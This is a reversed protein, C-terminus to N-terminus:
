GGDKRVRRAPSEATLYRDPPSEPLFRPNVSGTKFTERATSRARAVCSRSKFTTIAACSDMTRTTDLLVLAIFQVTHLGVASLKMDIRFLGESPGTAAGRWETM